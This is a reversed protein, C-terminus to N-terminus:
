MTLMFRHYLFLFNFELSPFCNTSSGLQFAQECTQQLPACFLFFPKLFFSCRRTMSLCEVFNMSLPQPVSNEKPRQDFGEWLRNKPIMIRLRCTVKGETIEHDSSIGACCSYSTM